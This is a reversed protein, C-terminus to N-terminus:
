IKKYFIKLFIDPTYIELYVTGSSQVYSQQLIIWKGM